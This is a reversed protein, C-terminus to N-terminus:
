STKMAIKKSGNGQLQTVILVPSKYWCFSSPKSTLFIQRGVGTKGPAGVSSSYCLALAQSESRCIGGDVGVRIHRQVLAKEKVPATVKQVM